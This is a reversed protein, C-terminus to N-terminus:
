RGNPQVADLRAVARAFIAPDREIGTFAIDRERCVVGVTGAGMMPDIIHLPQEPYCVRVVHVLHEAWTRSQEWTSMDATKPTNVFGDRVFGKSPLAGNVWWGVPKWLVEIGMRLRPHPGAEQWMALLWRWCLWRTVDPVVLPVLAHPLIAFYSGGPRLLGRLHEALVGYNAGYQKAYPPDTICATYAADPLQPLIDAYSGQYLAVGDRAFQPQM